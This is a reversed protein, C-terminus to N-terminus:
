QVPHCLHVIFVFGVGISIILAPWYTDLWSQKEEHSSM